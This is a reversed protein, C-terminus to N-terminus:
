IRCRVFGQGRGAKLQLFLVDGGGAGQAELLLDPTPYNCLICEM